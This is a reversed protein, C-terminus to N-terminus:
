SLTAQSFCLLSMLYWSWVRQCVGLLRWLRQGTMDSCAPFERNGPSPRTNVETGLKDSLEWWGCFFPLDKLHSKDTSQFPSASPPTPSPPAPPSLGATSLGCRQMGLREESRQSVHLSKVEAPFFHKCCLFLLFVPSRDFVAGTWSLWSRRRLFEWSQKGWGCSRCATRRARASLPESAHFRVHSQVSLAAANTRIQAFVSAISGWQSGFSCQDVLLILVQIVFSCHNYKKLKGGGINCSDLEAFVCAKWAPTNMHPLMRCSLLCEITNVSSQKM